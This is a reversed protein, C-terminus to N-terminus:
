LNVTYMNIISQEGASLESLSRMSAAEADIYFFSLTSPEYGIEDITKLLASSIASKAFSEVKLRNTLQAVRQEVFTIDYIKYFKGMEVLAEENTKGSKIMMDKLQCYRQMDSFTCTNKSMFIVNQPITVDEPITVTYDTVKGKDVVFSFSANEHIGEFTGTFYQNDFSGDLFQQIFMVGVNKPAKTMMLVNISMGSIWAMILLFTKGTGNAGVFLNIDKMLMTDVNMGNMHVSLSNIKGPQKSM